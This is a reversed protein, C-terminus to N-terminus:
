VRSLAQDRSCGAEPAQIYLGTSTRTLFGAHILSGLAADCLHSSLNWLRQAQWATLCLGPLEAYEMRMLQVAEDVQLPM